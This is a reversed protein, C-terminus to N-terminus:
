LSNLNNLLFLLPLSAYLLTIGRRLWHGTLPFSKKAWEGLAFVAYTIWVSYIILLPLLLSERNPGSYVLAFLTYAAAGLMTVVGIPPYWRALRALGLVGALVGLVSFQAVVFNVWEIWRRGDRWAPLIIFHGQVVLYDTLIGRGGIGVILSLLIWFIVPLTTRSLYFSLFISPALLTLLSDNLVGVGFLLLIGWIHYPQAKIHTKADDTKNLLLPPADDPRPNTVLLMDMVLYLLWSVIFATLRLSRPTGIQSWFLAVFVLVGLGFGIYPQKSLLLAAVMIIGASVVAIVITAPEGEGGGTQVWFAPCFALTLGGIGALVAGMRRLTLVIGVIVLALGTARIVPTNGLVLFAFWALGGCALAPMWFKVLTYQPDNLLRM